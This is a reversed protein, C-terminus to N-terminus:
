LGTKEKEFRWFDGPRIIPLGQFNKLVLLDEDGSILCDVNGSVASALVHDDDSDRCIPTSLPTYTIMETNKCIFSVIQDVKAKPFCFKRVLKEYLEDLVWQSIYIKHEVLCHDFLESCTGRVIFAAILVNTDFFIKM